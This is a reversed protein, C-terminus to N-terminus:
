CECETVSGWSQEILTAMICIIRWSLIALKLRSKSSCGTEDGHNAALVDYTEHMSEWACETRGRGRTSSILM